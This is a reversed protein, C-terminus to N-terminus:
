RRPPRPVRSMPIQRDNVRSEDAEPEYPTVGERPPRPVRHGARAGINSTGFGPPPRPVYHRKPLAPGNGRDEALGQMDDNSPMEQSQDMSQDMGNQSDRATQTESDHRSEKKLAHIASASAPAAASARIAGGAHPHHNRALKRRGTARRRVRSILVHHRAARPRADLPVGASPKPLPKQRIDEFQRPMKQDALTRNIPTTAGAPPRVSTPRVSTPRVVSVAPTSERRFLKAGVDRLDRYSFSVAAAVCGLLVVLVLVRGWRFSSVDDEFSYVFSSDPEAPSSPLFSGGPPAVPDLSAKLEVPPETKHIPQGERLQAGCMGCFQSQSASEHDCSACRVRRSAQSGNAAKSLVSLVLRANVTDRECIGVTDAGTEAPGAVMADPALTQSCAAQEHHRQLVWVAALLGEFTSADLSLHQSM